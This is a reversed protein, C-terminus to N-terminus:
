WGRNATILIIEKTLYAIERPLQKRFEKYLKIVKQFFRFNNIELKGAFEVMLEILVIDM